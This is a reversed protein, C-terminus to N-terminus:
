AMVEALEPDIDAPTCNLARALKHIYLPGVPGGKTWRWATARNCGVARALEDFSMGSAAIREQPTM